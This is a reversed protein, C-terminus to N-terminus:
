ALESEDPELLFSAKTLIANVIPNRHRFYNFTETLESGIYRKFAYSTVGFDIQRIGDRISIDIAQLMLAFYLKFQHSRDYDMGLYKCCLTQDTRLLQHFGIMSDGEFYFIYKSIAATEQFYAQPLDEFHIDAHGSTQRYLEHVRPLYAAPLGDVEECRLGASAKLKRKLDTRVKHKLQTWYDEGVDLVPVPLGRVANFNDLKLGSGFGKYSILPALKFLERNILALVEPSREGQIQGQDVSPHGICAIKLSVNGLLKKLIGPSMMANLLLRMVFFPAISVLTGNRRVIFCGLEFGPVRARAYARYFEGSEPNDALFDDPVDRAREITLM